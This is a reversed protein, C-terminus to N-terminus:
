DKKQNKILWAVDRKLGILLERDEDHDNRSQVRDRKMEEFGLELARVRYFLVSVTGSVGLLTLCAMGISILSEIQM